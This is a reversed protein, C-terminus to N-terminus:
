CVQGELNAIEEDINKKMDQLGELMRSQILGPTMPEGAKISVASLLEIYATSVGTQGNQAPQFKVYPISLDELIKNGLARNETETDLREAM